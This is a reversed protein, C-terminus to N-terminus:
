YSQGWKFKYVQILQIKNKDWGHIFNSKKKLDFQNTKNAHHQKNVNSLFMFRRNAVNCWVVNTCSQESSQNINVKM